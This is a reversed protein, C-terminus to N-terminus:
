ADHLFSKRESPFFLGFSMGVVVHSIWVAFPM